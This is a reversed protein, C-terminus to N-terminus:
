RVSLTQSNKLIKHCVSCRYLNDPFSNHEEQEDTNALLDTRVRINQERDGRKEKRKRDKKEGKRKQPNKCKKM